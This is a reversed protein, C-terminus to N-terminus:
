KLLVLAIAILIGLVLAGGGVALFLMLNGNNKPLGMPVDDRFQNGVSVPPGAQYGGAAAQYPAPGAQYAPAAMAPAPAPAPADFTDLADAEGFFSDAVNSVAAPPPAKMLEPLKAAIRSSLEGESVKAWELHSGTLGYAAGVADALAGVSGIRQGPQKKFAHTMVRDLTPPVPHKANQAAQSPAKPEKTLIELLISPGNVGVFPVSGVVSEYIIAALAWVDARHDLTELGQAQEPAMYFPSGITTGLVTLKKAQEGKDKVSGFDLLKVTDGESTQCLFLNDPKL